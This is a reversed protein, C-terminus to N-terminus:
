THIKNCFLNLDVVQCIFNTIWKYQAARMESYKYKYEKDGWSPEDEPGKRGGFLASQDRFRTQRNGEQKEQLAFYFKFYITFRINLNYRQWNSPNLPGKWIISEGFSGSYTFYRTSFVKWIHESFFPELWQASCSPTSRGTQLRISTWNDRISM